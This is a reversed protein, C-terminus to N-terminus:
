RAGVPGSNFNTPVAVPVGNGGGAHNHSHEIESRFLRKDLEHFSAQIKVVAESLSLYGRIVLITGAISGLGTVVSFVLAAWQAANM